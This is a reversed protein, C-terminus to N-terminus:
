PQLFLHNDVVKARLRNCPHRLHVECIEGGLRVARYAVEREVSASTADGGEPTSGGPLEMPGAIFEQKDQLPLRFERHELIASRMGAHQKGTLQRDDRLSM